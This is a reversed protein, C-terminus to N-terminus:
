SWYYCGVCKWTEVPGQPHIDGRWQEMILRMLERPRMVRSVSRLKVGRLMGTVGSAMGLRLWQGILIQNRRPVFIGLKVIVIQWMVVISVKLHM